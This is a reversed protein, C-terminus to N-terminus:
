LVFPQESNEKRWRTKPITELVEERYKQWKEKKELSEALVTNVPYKVARIKMKELLGKLRFTQLQSKHICFVNTTTDAIISGKNLGEDLDLICAEGFFMPWQLTKIECMKDAFAKGFGLSTDDDGQALAAAADAEAKQALAEYRQIELELEYRDIESITWNPPYAEQGEMDNTNSNLTTSATAPITTGTAKPSAAKGKGGKRLKHHYVYKLDHALAKQKLDILIQGYIESKNPRMVARVMGKMILYVYSSPTDQEEITEGANYTRTQGMRALRIQEPIPWETFLGCAKILELRSQFEKATISALIKDFVEFEVLLLECLGTSAYTAFMGPALARYKERDANLKAYDDTDLSEQLSVSETSPEMDGIRHGNGDNGGEMEGQNGRKISSIATDSPFKKADIRNLLANVLSSHRSFLVDIHGFAEYSRVVGIFSDGTQGEQNIKISGKLLFCAADAPDGQAYINGTTNVARYEVKSALETFASNELNRLFPILRLCSVIVELHEPKRMYPATALAAQLSTPKIFISEFLNLKYGNQIKFTHLSKGGDASVDGQKSRDVQAKLLRRKFSNNCEDDIGVAVGEDNSASANVSRVVLRRRSGGISSPSGSVNYSDQTPLAQTQIQIVPMTSSQSQYEDGTNIGDSNVNNTIQGNQPSSHAGSASYSNTTSKTVNAKEFEMELRKKKNEIIISISENFRQVRRLALAYTDRADLNQPCLLTAQHLDAIGAPDDGLRLSVVGRNYHAIFDDLVNYAGKSVRKLTEIADTFVIHSATFKNQKFLLVGIFIKSLQPERSHLGARAYSAKALDIDGEKEYQRGLELMERESLNCPRCNFDVELIKIIRIDPPNEKAIRTITKQAKEIAKISSALNKSAQKTSAVALSTASTIAETSGASNAQKSQHSHLLSNNTHTSSQHIDPLISGEQHVSMSDPPDSFLSAHDKLQSSHAHQHSHQPQRAHVINWCHEVVKKDLGSVTHEVNLDPVPRTIFPLVESDIGRIAESTEFERVNEKRNMLTQINNGIGWKPRRRPDILNNCSISYANSMHPYQNISTGSETYINEKRKVSETGGNQTVIDSEFETYDRIAAKINATISINSYESIVSDDDAAPLTASSGDYELKREKESEPLPIRGESIASLTNMISKDIVQKAKLDGEDRVVPAGGDKDQLKRVFHHHSFTVEAQTKRFEKVFDPLASSAETWDSVSDQARMLSSTSDDDRNAKKNNAGSTGGGGGKGKHSKNRSKQASSTDDENDNIKSSENDINSDEDDKLVIGAGEGEDEGYEPVFIPSFMLKSSDKDANKSRIESFAADVSKNRMAAEMIAMLVKRTSCPMVLIFNAGGLAEIQNLTEKTNFQPPLLIVTGIGSLKSTDPAKMRKNVFDLAKLTTFDYYELLIVDISPIEPDDYYEIIRPCDKIENALICRSFEPRLKRALERTKSYILLTCGHLINLGAFTQTTFALRDTEM